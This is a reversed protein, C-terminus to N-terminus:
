ELLTAYYIRKSDLKVTMKFSRIHVKKRENLKQCILVLFIYVKNEKLDQKRTFSKTKNNM